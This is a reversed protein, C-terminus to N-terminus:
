DLKAGIDEHDPKSDVTYEPLAIEYVSIENGM